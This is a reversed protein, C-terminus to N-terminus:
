TEAPWLVGAMAGLLPMTILSGLNLSDESTLCLEAKCAVLGEVSM